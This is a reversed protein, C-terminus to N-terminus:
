KEESEAKCWTTEPKNIMEQKAGQLCRSNSFRRMSGWAGPTWICAMGSSATCSSLPSSSSSSGLLRMELLLGGAKDRGRRRKKRRKSRRKRWQRETNLPLRNESARWDAGVVLPYGALLLEGVRLVFAFAAAPVCGAELLDLPGLSLSVFLSFFLLLFTLLFCFTDIWKEKEWKWRGASVDTKNSRIYWVDGQRFCQRWNLPRLTPQM